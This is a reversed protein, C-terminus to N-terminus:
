SGGGAVLAVLRAVSDDLQTDAAGVSGEWLRLQEDEPLAELAM